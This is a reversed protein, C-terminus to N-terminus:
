DISRQTIKKRGQFLANGNKAVKQTLKPASKNKNTGQRNNKATAKRDGVTEQHDKNSTGKRNQGQGTNKRGQRAIKTEPVRHNAVHGILEERVLRYGLLNEIKGLTDIEHAAVLSIAIGQEGARGTRGVRHIYDEAVPPLDHNIVAPLHQIDLGRAAVDTAVLVTLNGQQFNQMVRRREHAKRDGHLLDANIGSDLLHKLCAEAGKKTKTFVLTQRWQNDQLLTLTAAAKDQHDVPHLWQKVNAATRNALAQGLYVANPILHEALEKVDQNYTASFLLSQHQKPLCKLIRKLDDSFGLDLLRDAEDLILCQITDLFHGDRHLIELLRGPTAVLCDAGQLLMKNQDQLSEGGSILAVSLDLPRGFFDMQQWLQRALERTPAILLVRPLVTGDEDVLQPHQQCMEVVPLVYAATKGTGTPAAGVLSRGELILPIASAQIDTPKHYGAKNILDLLEKTYLLESFTTM